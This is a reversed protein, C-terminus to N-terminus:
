CRSPPLSVPPAPAEQLAQAFVVPMGEPVPFGSGALMVERQPLFPPTM